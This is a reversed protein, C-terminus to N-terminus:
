LIVEVLWGSHPTIDPPMKMLETKAIRVGKESFIYDAMVPTGDVTFTSYINPSDLIERDTVPLEFNMNHRVLALTQDVRKKQQAIRVDAPSAHFTGALISNGNSERIAIGALQRAQRERELINGSTLLVNFLKLPSNGVSIEVEQVCFQPAFTTQWWNGPAVPPLAFRRNWALKVRSVVAVGVDVPGLMPEELPNPYPLYPHKWVRSRAIYGYRLKHALYEAQKVNGAFRSGFDVEQLLLVDIRQEKVFDALLDLRARVMTSDVPFVKGAELDLYSSGSTYNLNVSLIRLTNGTLEMTEAGGWPAAVVADEENPL